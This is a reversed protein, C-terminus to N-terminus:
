RTGPRISVNPVAVEVSQEDIQHQDRKVGHPELHTCARQVAM